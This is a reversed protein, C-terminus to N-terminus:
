QKIIKIQSGTSSEKIFYIGSNLESLHVKNQTNNIEFSKVEKGTVDFISFQGKIDTDITLVGTTPNPYVKFN